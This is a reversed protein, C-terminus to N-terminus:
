KQSAGLQILEGEIERVQYTSIIIDTLVKAKEPSIDDRAIAQIINDMTDGLKDPDYNIQFTSSNKYHNSKTSWGFKAKMIFQWNKSEVDGMRKFWYCESAINGISAVRAFEPQYHDSDKLCWRRMTDRCIGLEACIDVPFAGNEYMEKIKPLKTPDFKSIRGDLVKENGRGTGKTKARQKGDSTKTKSSM